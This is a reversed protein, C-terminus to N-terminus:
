RSGTEINPPPKQPKQPAIGKADKVLVIPPLEFGAM